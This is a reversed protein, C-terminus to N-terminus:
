RENGLQLSVNLLKQDREKLVKDATALSAKASNLEKEMHTAKQKAKEM